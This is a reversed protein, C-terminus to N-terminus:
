TRPRYSRWWSDVLVDHVLGNSLVCGQVPRDYRQERGRRDSVRGGAEIVLLAVAACDWPAQGSYLDADWFGEAVKCGSFVSPWPFRHVEATVRGSGSADVLSSAGTRVQLLGDANLDGPAPVSGGGKVTLAEDVASRGSVSLRSVVRPGEGGAMDRAGGRFAGGGATAWYMEGTSPNHAVAVVPQGHVVLAISVMFVPIGLILQQTGDVPDIVWVRGDVGDVRDLPTGSPASSAEEGLVGDGPRRARVQEIFTENLEQDAATVPSADAKAAVELGAAVLERVRRGAQGAFDLAFALDAAWEGM